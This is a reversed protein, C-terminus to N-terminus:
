HGQPPPCRWPLRRRPPEGRLGSTIIKASFSSSQEFTDPLPIDRRVM